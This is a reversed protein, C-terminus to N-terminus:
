NENKQFIDRTCFIVIALGILSVIAAILYVSNAGALINGVDTPDAKTKLDYSIGFISAAALGSLTNIFNVLSTGIGLDQPDLCTQAMTTISVARFSEAVGTVGIMIIYLIVNTNLNTFSMVFMPIAVLTTAIIMAIKHNSRKRAVWAGALVPLIVTIITRPLQLLGAISKPKGLVKITVLPAYINMANMYFYGIFGICLLVVYNKNELLKIPILPEEANKEIKLFIVGIILGIVMGGLIKIDKFGYKPAYNLALLILSLSIAMLIIGAADLKVKKNSKNNPLNFAILIVGLFLPIVPFTIALVLYGLDMLTGAIVSGLLGGVAIGSSLFGMMKPVDKPENIERALIYPASVFAGMATGLLFRFIIFPVLTKAFGIGIGCVISITGSFIILNRRGVLDGLKGGIPTMISLGLISVISVLSFYDMAGIQELMPAQLTSLSLGFMAISFMMFISALSVAFKQKKSLIIAPQTNM